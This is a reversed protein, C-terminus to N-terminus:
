DVKQCNAVQVVKTAPGVNRHQHSVKVGVNAADSLDVRDCGAGGQRDQLLLASESVVRQTM